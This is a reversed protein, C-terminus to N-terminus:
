HKKDIGYTFSNSWNFKNSISPSSAKIGVEEYVRRADADNDVAVSVKGKLQKAHRRKSELGEAHSRGVSNMLLRNYKIGARKLAATTSARASEPRATVIYVVDQKNAWEVMSKIPITGARLLTGDIDIIVAM